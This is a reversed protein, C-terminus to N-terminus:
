TRDGKHNDMGQFQLRLREAKGKLYDMAPKMQVRDMPVSRAWVERLECLACEILYIENRLEVRARIDADLQDSAQDFTIM